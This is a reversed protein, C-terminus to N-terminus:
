MWYLASAKDGPELRRDSASKVVALNIRRGDERIINKAGTEGPPPNPGNDM